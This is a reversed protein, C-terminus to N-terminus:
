LITAAITPLIPSVVVLLLAAITLRAAEVEDTTKGAKYLLVGAIVVATTISGVVTM